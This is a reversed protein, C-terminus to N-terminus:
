VTEAQAGTMTVWFEKHAKKYHEMIFNAYVNRVWYM